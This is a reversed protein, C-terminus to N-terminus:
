RLGGPLQQSSKARSQNRRLERITTPLRRAEDGTLYALRSFIQRATQKKAHQTHDHNIKRHVIDANVGQTRFTQRLCLSWRRGHHPHRQTLLAPTQEGGANGNGCNSEQTLAHQRRGSNVERHGFISQEELLKCPKIACSNRRERDRQLASQGDNYCKDGAAEFLNQIVNHRYIHHEKRQRRRADKNESPTIAITVKKAHRAMRECRKEKNRRTAHYSETEHVLIRQVACETETNHESAQGCIKDPRSPFTLYRRTLVALPLSQIM